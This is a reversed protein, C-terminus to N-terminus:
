SNKGACSLSLARRAARLTAFRGVYKQAGYHVGMYNTPRQVRWRGHQKDWHIGVPQGRRHPPRNQRNRSQSSLRLNVWRNDTRIGNKHDVQVQPPLWDGTKLFWAIRHAKFSKGGFKVLVYGGSNVSGARSGGCATGTRGKTWILVGTRADYQLHQRLSDLVSSKM